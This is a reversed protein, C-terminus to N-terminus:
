TQLNLFLTSAGCIGLHKAYVCVCVCVQMLSSSRLHRRHHPPGGMCMDLGKSEELTAHYLCSKSARQYLSAVGVCM